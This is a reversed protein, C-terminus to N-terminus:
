TADGGKLIAILKEAPLVGLGDMEQVLEAVIAMRPKLTMLALQRAEEAFAKPETPDALESFHQVWHQDSEESGLFGRDGPQEETGPAETPLFGQNIGLNVAAWGGWFMAIVALQQGRTMERFSLSAKSPESHGVFEGGVVYVALDGTSGFHLYEVVGHGVEHFQVRRKSQRWQEVM